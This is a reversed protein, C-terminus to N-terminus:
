IRDVGYLYLGESSKGILRFGACIFPSSYVYDIENKNAIDRKKFCDGSMFENYDVIENSITSKKSWLPYNDTVVGIVLGKWNPSLFRKEKIDKFLSLDDDTLYNNAPSAPVSYTDAGITNLRLEKWNTRETYHFSMIFFSVFVLALVGVVFYKRKKNEGVKFYILLDNLGFGALVFILLSTVLVIREYGIIIRNLSFSYYIWFLLGIFIPLTVLTRKKFERFLGFVAFAIIIIPIIKYIIYQPIANKEFANYIINSFILSFLGTISEGSYFFYLVILAILCCLGFYIALSKYKIKESEEKIFFHYAILAPTFILFLPPYFLLSLFGIGLSMKMDKISLFYFSLLLCIIGPIVPILTWLGPLNAGNIIYPVSLAVIGSVSRSVGNVRLLFYMLSCIILASLFSLWVYQTVPNLGLFLFIESLFSYFALEPMPFPINYWLPNVKPLEGTKISYKILSIAVWEDSFYPYTYQMSTVQKSPETFTTIEGTFNFHISYFVISLIVLVILFIWDLKFDTNKMEGYDVKFLVGVCVVLNVILVAWYNFIGFFQLILALLLHFGIIFSSIYFFGDRKNNFNLVLFYPILLLVVGILTKIM